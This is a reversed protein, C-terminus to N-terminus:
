SRAAKATSASRRTSGRRARLDAGALRRVAEELTSDKKAFNLRARTKGGRAYFSSGPVVIVGVTRALFDVFEWDHRGASPRPM